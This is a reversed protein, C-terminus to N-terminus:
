HHTTSMEKKRSSKKEKDEERKIPKINKYRRYQYKIGEYELIDGAFVMEWDQSFDLNPFYADVADFAKFVKTIYILDCYPLLEKYIQEGGIIAIKEESKEERKKLLWDKVDEMSVYVPSKIDADDPSGSSNHSIILNTRKPLPSTPLSEYTKRGMIVTGGSTIRSFHKLDEPISILLQNNYGIGYNKDACVIAIIQSDEPKKKKPM